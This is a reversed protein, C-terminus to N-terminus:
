ELAFTQWIATVGRPRTAGHTYETRAKLTEPRTQSDCCV